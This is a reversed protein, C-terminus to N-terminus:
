VFWEPEDHVLRHKATTWDNHTIPDARFVIEHTLAFSATHKSCSVHVRQSRSKAINEQILFFASAHGGRRALEHISPRRALVRIIQHSRYFRGGPKVTLFPSGHRRLVLANPIMGLKTMAANAHTWCLERPIHLAFLTSICNVM